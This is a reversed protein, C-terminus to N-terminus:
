LPKPRAGILDGITRFVFSTLQAREIALVPIHEGLFKVKLRPM